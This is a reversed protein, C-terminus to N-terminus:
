VAPAITMAHMTVAMIIPMMMLIARMMSQMIIAMLRLHAISIVTHAVVNMIGTVPM